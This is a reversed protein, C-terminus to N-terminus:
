GKAEDKHKEGYIVEDELPIGEMGVYAALAQQVISSLTRHQADAIAKVRRYIEAHVHITM